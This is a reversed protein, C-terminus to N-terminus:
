ASHDAINIIAGKSKTIYKANVSLFPLKVNSLIVESVDYELVNTIDSPKERIAVVTHKSIPYGRAYQIDLADSLDRPM